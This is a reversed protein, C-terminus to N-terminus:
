TIKLFERLSKEELIHIRFRWFSMENNNILSLALVGKLIGLDNEADIEKWASAKLAFGTESSAFYIQKLLADKTEIDLWDRLPNKKAQERMQKGFIQAAKDAEKFREQQSLAAEIIFEADAPIPHQETVANTPLLTSKDNTKEAKSKSNDAAQQKKILEEAEAIELKNKQHQTKIIKEFKSKNEPEYHCFVALLDKKSAYLNIFEPMGGMKAFTRGITEEITMLEDDYADFLTFIEREKNPTTIYSRMLLKLLDKLEFEQKEDKEVPIDKIIKILLHLDQFHGLIIFVISKAGWQSLSRYDQFCNILYKQTFEEGCYKAITTLKDEESGIYLTNFRQTALNDDQYAQSLRQWLRDSDMCVPMMVPKELFSNLWKVVLRAIGQTIDGQIYAQNPLRNEILLAVAMIAIHYPYGQTKNNFIASSNGSDICDIAEEDAYLVDDLQSEENEPELYQELHPYLSFDEARKRSLLDGITRWHEDNKGKNRIIETTYSYRKEDFFTETKVDILPAPFNEIIQLSEKYIASWQSKKIGKFNVGCYVFLGM